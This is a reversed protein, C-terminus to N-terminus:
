ADASPPLFDRRTDVPARACARMGACRVVVVLRSRGCGAAVFFLNDYDHTATDAIAYRTMLNQM